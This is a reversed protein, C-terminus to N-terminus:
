KVEVPLEKHAIKWKTYRGYFYFGFRISDKQLFTKIFQSSTQKLEQISKWHITDKNTAICTSKIQGHILRQAEKTLDNYYVYSVFEQPKRKIEILTNDKTPCVLNEHDKAWLVIDGRWNNRGTYRHKSNFFYTCSSIRMEGFSNQSIRFALPFAIYGISDQSPVFGIIIPYNSEVQTITVNDISTSCSFLTLVLIFIISKKM